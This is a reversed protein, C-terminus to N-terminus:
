LASLLLSLQPNSDRLLHEEQLEKCDFKRYAIEAAKPSILYLDFLMLMLEHSVNLNNVRCQYETYLYGRYADVRSWLLSQQEFEAAISLPIPNHARLIEDIRFHDWLIQFSILYGYGEIIPVIDKPLLPSM